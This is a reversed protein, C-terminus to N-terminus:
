LIEGKSSGTPVCSREERGVRVNESTSLYAFSEDPQSFVAFAYLNKASGPKRWSILHSNIIVKVIYLFPTNTPSLASM